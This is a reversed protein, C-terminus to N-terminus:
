LVTSTRCRPMRFGDGSEASIRGGMVWSFRQGNSTVFERLGHHRSDLVRVGKGAVFACISSWQPGRGTDVRKLVHALCGKAMCLIPNLFKVFLESRGDGDLDVEVYAAGGQHVYPLDGRYDPEYVWDRNFGAENLAAAIDPKAGAPAFMVREDAHAPSQGASPVVICSILIAFLFSRWAM